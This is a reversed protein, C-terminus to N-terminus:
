DRLLFAQLTRGKWKEEELKKLALRVKERNVSVFAHHDFIHIKGVQEGTLGGEGTLAGLINGPRLKQKKGSKIKLTSMPAQWRKQDLVDENPLKDNTIEIDLYKELLSMKHSEKSSYLSCAIGSKGARGTRGVRHVHVEFDRSVHYNFVADISDIDLGRAAVDTAVLIAISKNAFRVLTEDRDRQELDGHLAMAQFGEDILDDRLEQAELKTACFVVASEPKHELLLLFLAHLRQDEDKVKYFSQKISSSDHKQELQIMLPDNMIKQSISEIRKPYTASFLLTQRSKPAADFVADLEEQFGMELMRDAEDLVLISLNALDLNEKRLHKNIRGPTGVVIHAGYSLSKVQPKYLAGGCLTLLKINPMMRALQRIAKSVQDALERTPCLILAQVDSKQLDLGALIGLGFAATKGSGTMAQAILDKGELISPLSQAQIPTMKEYGLSDINDLLESALPLTSFKLDTM